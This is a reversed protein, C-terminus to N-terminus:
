AIRGPLAVGMISRRAAAFAAVFPNLSPARQLADTPPPLPMGPRAYIIIAPGPRQYRFLGRYPLYVQDNEFPLDGGDRLPSFSIRAFGLRELSAMLSREEAELMGPVRGTIFSSFLYYDARIDTLFFSPDTALDLLRYRRADLPPTYTPYYHRGQLVITSGPPAVRDVYEKVLLRTDPRYLMFDLYLSRTLPIAVLFAVFVWLVIPRRFWIPPTAERLAVIGWACVLAIFPTSPLLFRAFFLPQMAHYLLLIAVPVLALLTAKARLGGRTLCVVAALPFFLLLPWGLETELMRSVLLPVPVDSQGLWMKGRLGYQAMLGGLFAGTDFLAYPNALLFGVLSFLLLTLWEFGIKRARDRWSRGQERFAWLLCALLLPLVAVGGNYKTAVAFGATLGGLILDRRLGLKLVRVAFLFSLTILFVMPVDNVGFHADRVSVFAVAYLCAALSGGLGGGFQRGILFLMICVMTGALAALGRAIGFAVAPLLNSLFEGPSGAAGMAYQAVFQGYLVLLIAYTYMPPNEFYAPHLTMRRMMMVAKDLFHHEDPHFGYPM